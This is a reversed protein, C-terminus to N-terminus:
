THAPALGDAQLSRITDRISQEISINASWGLAKIRTTDLQVLPSDGKWGRKGGAYEFAVNTMGLEDTVIRAVTAVDLCDDHGVNFTRKSGSAQNVAIGLAALGDRVDLFSKRQTGDGLIALRRPDDMLKACFDRVVGHSYRPGTWSVFRFITVELGFYEAYAQAMAEGAIKSAGYLSTQILPTDEPTPFVSPEGYVAASSAFFFRRVERACSAELVNWTGITNQELDIRRNVTGGRVDANAQLHFVTDVGRMAADLAGRDLVDAEVVRLNPSSIRMVSSRRGTSFNDYIVVESRGEELLRAALNSGIFGAGGTILVKEMM